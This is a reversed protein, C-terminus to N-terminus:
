IVKRLYVNYAESKREFEIIDGVRVNDQILIDPSGVGVRTAENSDRMLTPEVQLVISAEVRKQEFLIATVKSTYTAASWHSYKIAINTDSYHDKRETFVDALLYMVVGDSGVGLERGKDWLPTLVNEEMWASFDELSTRPIDAGKVVMYPPPQLGADILADFAKDVRLDGYSFPYFSLYKLDEEIFTSPARLMAMATSKPTKYGKDPYRSKVIQLDQLSVFSEGTVRGHIKTEDIGKLCLMAKVAETYDISDTARGRSVALKLGAGDEDFLVKTNVGDIKLSFHVACEPANKWFEFAEEPTVVPRISTSKQTNLDTYDASVNGSPTNPNTKVKSSSTKVGSLRIAETVFIDYIDDDYSQNVFDAAEPYTEGYLQEFLDSTKNDIAPFGFRYCARFYYIIEVPNNTSLILDIGKHYREETISKLYDGWVEVTEFLFNLPIGEERFATLCTYVEEPNQFSCGLITASDLENSKCYLNGAPPYLGYLYEAIRQKNVSM